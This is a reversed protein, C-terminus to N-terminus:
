ILLKLPSTCSFVMKMPRFEMSTKIPTMYAKHDIQNYVYERWDLSGNVKYSNLLNYITICRSNKQRTM